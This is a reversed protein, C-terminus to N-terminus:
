VQDHHPAGRKLLEDFAAFWKVKLEDSWSPDLDPFKELLIKDWQFNQPMLEKSKPIEHRNEMSMEFKKTSKKTGTGLHTRRSKKIIHPSLPIGADQAIEIFFKICKRVMDPKSMNYVEHFTGELQSPTATKPDFSSGMLFRYSDFCIKNLAQTRAEERAAVMQKLQVTPTDNTDILGLFHLAGLLQTWTSGSYRDGGVSRDVRSPIGNQELYEIFHYFTRYSVYPPLRKKISTVMGCRAPLGSKDEIRISDKTNPLLVIGPSEKASTHVPFFLGTGFHGTNQFSAPCNKANGKPV